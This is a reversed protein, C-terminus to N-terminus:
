KGLSKNEEEIWHPKKEKQKINYFYVYWETRYTTNKGGMYAYLNILYIHNIKEYLVCALSRPRISYNWFIGVSVVPNTSMHGIDYGFDKQLNGPSIEEWTRYSFCKLFSNTEDNHLRFGGLLITICTLNGDKLQKPFHFANKEKIGCVKSVRIRKVVCLMLFFPKRDLKGAYQVQRKSM